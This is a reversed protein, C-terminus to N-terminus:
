QVLKTLCSNSAAAQHTQKPSGPNLNSVLPFRLVAKTTWVKGLDVIGHPITFNLFAERPELDYTSLDSRVSIQSM